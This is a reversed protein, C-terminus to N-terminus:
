SDAKVGSDAKVPFVMLSGTDDAPTMRPSDPLLDLQVARPPKAPAELPEITFAIDEGRLERAFKEAHSRKAFDVVSDRPPKFPPPADKPRFGVGGLARGAPHFVTCYRGTFRQYRVRWAAM